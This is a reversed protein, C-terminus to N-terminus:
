RTEGKFKLYNAFNFLYTQSVNELDLFKENKFPNIGDESEFM